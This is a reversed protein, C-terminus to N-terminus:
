SKRKVKPIDQKIENDKEGLVVKQNITKLQGHMQMLQHTYM